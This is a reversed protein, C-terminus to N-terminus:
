SWLALPDRVGSAHRGLMLARAVPAHQDAFESPTCGIFRRFNHIFHSQDYFSQGAADVWGIDGRLALEASAALTRYKRILRGPTAGHTAVTLRRLQRASLDLSRMLDDPTANAPARLVADIAQVRPDPIARPAFLLHRCLRDARMALIKDDQEDDDITASAVSDGTMAALEIIDDVLNCGYRRTMATWGAPLLGSGVIRQGLPADLVWADNTPGILALCPTTSPARGGIGLRFPLADRMQVQPLMAPVRGWYGPPARFVYHFSVSGALAASPLHFSISASTM